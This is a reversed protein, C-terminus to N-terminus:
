INTKKLTYKKFNLYAISRKAKRYLHNKKILRLKSSIRMNIISKKLSIIEDNIVETNSLSLFQSNKSIKM